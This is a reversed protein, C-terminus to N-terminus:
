PKEFHQGRAQHDTLLQNAATLIANRTTGKDLHVLMSEFNRLQGTLIVGGHDDAYSKIGQINDVINECFSRRFFRTYLNKGSEFQLSLCYGSPQGGYLHYGALNKAVYAPFDLKADVLKVEIKYGLTIHPTHTNLTAFGHGEDFQVIEGDCAPGFLKRLDSM